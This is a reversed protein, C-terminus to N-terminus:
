GAPTGGVIEDLKLVARWNRCTVSSGAYRELIAPTSKSQGIGNAYHIWIADGKKTLQEARRARQQLAPEVAAKPPQKPLALVVWPGNKRAEYPFPRDTLYDAWRLASRVTVPIAFGFKQEIANELQAEAKSM